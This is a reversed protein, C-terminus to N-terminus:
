LEILKMSVWVSSAFVGVIIPVMAIQTILTVKFYFIITFMLATFVGFSAISTLLEM